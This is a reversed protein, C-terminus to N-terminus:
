WFGVSPPRLMARVASPPRVQVSASLAEDGCPKRDATAYIGPLPPLRSMDTPILPVSRESSPPSLQTATSVIPYLETCNPPRVAM